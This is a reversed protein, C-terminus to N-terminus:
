GDGERMGDSIRRRIGADDGRDVMDQIEANERRRARANREPKASLWWRLALVAMSLLSGVITAWGLPEIAPM